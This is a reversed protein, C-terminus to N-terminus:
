SHAVLLSKPRITPFKFGRSWTCQKILFQKCFFTSPDLETPMTPADTPVATTNSAPTAHQNPTLTTQFQSSKKADLDQANAYLKQWITKKAHSKTIYKIIYLVAVQTRVNPAQFDSLGSIWLGKWKRYLGDDFYKNNEVTLAQSFQLVAHIHPYLDQHAEVTRIYQCGPDHVRRIRQIFRNFDHNARRWADTDRQDRKFTGTFFVHNVFRKTRSM